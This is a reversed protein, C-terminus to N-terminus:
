RFDFADMALYELPRTPVISTMSFPGANINTRSSDAEACVRCKTTESPDFVVNMTRQITEASWAVSDPERVARPSRRPRKPVCKLGKCM